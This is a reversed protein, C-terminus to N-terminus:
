PLAGMMRGLPQHRGPPQAPESAARLLSGAEHCRSSMARRRDRRIPGGAQRGAVVYRGPDRPVPRAPRDVLRVAVALSCGYVAALLTFTVALAYPGCEPRAVLLCSLLAAGPLVTVPQPLAHGGVVATVAEALGAVVMWVVVWAMPSSATVGPLLLSAFGTGIACLALLLCVTARCGAACPHACRPANTVRIAVAVTAVATSTAPGAAPEAM